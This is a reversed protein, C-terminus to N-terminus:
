APILVGHRDIIPCRWTVICVGSQSITPLKSLMNSNNIIRDDSQLLRLLADSLGKEPDDSLQRIFSWGVYVAQTYCKLLHTDFQHVYQGFAWNRFSSSRQLKGLYNFNPCKKLTICQKIHYARKRKTFVPGEQRARELVIPGLNSINTTFLSLLMIRFYLCLVVSWKRSGIYMQKFIM